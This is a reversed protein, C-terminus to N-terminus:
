HDALFIDVETPSTNLSGNSSSISSYFFSQGLSLPSFLASDPSSPPSPPPEPPPPPLPPLDPFDLSSLFTAVDLPYLWLSSVTLTTPSATCEFLHSVTDDAAGCRPCTPSPSAGIRFKYDNLLNCHGSRLQSLTSRYSRPLRSESPHVPYPRRQLLPNDDQVQLSEEVFSAHIIEKVSNYAEPPLAGNTLFDAVSDRHASQLTQKMSRLGDPASIINYSPHSARSCSALFQASLMRLHDSVPLLCTEAHLHSQSAM